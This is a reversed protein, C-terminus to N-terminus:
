GSSALLDETTFKFIAFPRHNEALSLLGFVDVLNGGSCHPSILQEWITTALYIREMQRSIQKPKLITCSMAERGLSNNFGVNAYRPLAAKMLCHCVSLQACLFEETKNRSVKHVRLVVQKQQAPLCRQLSHGCEQEFHILPQIM